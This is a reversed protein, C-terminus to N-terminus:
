RSFVMVRRGHNWLERDTPSRTAEARKIAATDGSADFDIM